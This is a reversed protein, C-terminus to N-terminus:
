PSLKRAIIRDPALNRLPSTRANVVHEIASSESVTTDLRVLRDVRGSEPDVVRARDGDVVVEVPVADLGILAYSSLILPM